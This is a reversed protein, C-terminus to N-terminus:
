DISRVIRLEKKLTAIEKEAAEIKVDFEKKLNDATKSSAFFELNNKWTVIDNNLDSIKKRIAHEKQNLKRDANPGAMIKTLQAMLKVKNLQEETLVDASKDVFNKIAESFKEKIEHIANRPVFGLKGYAQEYAELQEMDGADLANIQAIIDEKAKLNDNYEKEAEKNGARKNEFFTDCAAKFEKYVSERFKEPVPGIERWQRQLSKLTDATKNWDTNDKLAAAKEVLAKKKELNGERLSDLRKFFEHKNAFFQKFNAWFTKNIVKADERPVQGTAEWRKQLALLAKTKINWDKIKEADFSTFDKMEEIIAQKKILNEKHVEKLKDTYDKRNEYVADSAAKFRQWLPEQAEKPVPGIHKYEEHLENLQKIAAPVDKLESLKEAKVCLVEKASLNKKRDLEKLEHLISRQDYYRDLLANYNAWLTRAQAGPVQGISKWENQLEKIVNLGTISEEEDVLTRLKDLIEEKQRLNDDRQKEREKYHKKRRDRFLQYNADFRDNLEDHKMAFDAEEGGGELFKTLAEKKEAAYIEDFLPKIEKMIVDGRKFNDSHSVEKIVEVLRAKDYASYDPLAENDDDTADNEDEEELENKKAEAEKKDAISKSEASETDSEATNEISQEKIPSKAESVEQKLSDASAHEAEDQQEQAETLGEDVLAEDNSNIAIDVEDELQNDDENDAKEASKNTDNDTPDTILNEENEEDKEVTDEELGEEVLAEDAENLANEKVVSEQESTNQATDSVPKEDKALDTDAHLGTTNKELSEDEASAQSDVMEQDGMGEKVLVEDAPNIAEDDNEMTKEQMSQERQEKEKQVIAEQKKDPNNSTGNDEDMM